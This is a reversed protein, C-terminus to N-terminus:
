IFSYQPLIVRQIGFYGEELGAIKETQVIKRMLIGFDIILYAAFLIVFTGMIQPEYKFWKFTPPKERVKSTKLPVYTADKM